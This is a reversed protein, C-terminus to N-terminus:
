FSLHTIYTKGTRMNRVQLRIERASQAEAPFFLFGNAMGQDPISKGELGKDRIDDAIIRKRGAELGGQRGGYVAGGAAGAVAGKGASEAVNKGEVVGYAAGLVAGSATGWGAGKGAGALIAGSETAKVIRRVATNNPILNWYLNKNDILFTQNGVVEFNSGGQNDMVVQIPLLGAKKIDFGFANRAAAQDAFAEAGITVGAVTVNNHFKSAHKFGSYQTKYTECSIVGFLMAILVICSKYKM